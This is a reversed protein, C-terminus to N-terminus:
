MVIVAVAAQPRTGKPLSQSYLPLMQSHNQETVPPFISEVPLLIGGAFIRPIKAVERKLPPMLAGHIQRAHM